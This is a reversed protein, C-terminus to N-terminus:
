EYLEPYKQRLGASAESIEKSFGEAGFKGSVERNFNKYYRIQEDSHKVRRLLQIQMDRFCDDGKITLEYYDLRPSWSQWLRRVLGNALLRERFLVELKRQNTKMLISGLICTEFFSHPKSDGFLTLLRRTDKNLM